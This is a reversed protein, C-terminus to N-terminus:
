PAQAGRISCPRGCWRFLVDSRQALGLAGRRRPVYRRHRRRDGLRDQCCHGHQVRGGTVKDDASMPPPVLRGRLAM